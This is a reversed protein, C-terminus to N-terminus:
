TYMEGVKRAQIKRKEKERKAQELGNDRANFVKEEKERVRKEMEM